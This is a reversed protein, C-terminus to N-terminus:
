VIVQSLTRSQSPISSYSPQSSSSKIDNRPRLQLRAQVLESSRWDWEEDADEGEPELRDKFLGHPEVTSESSGEPPLLFDRYTEDLILAIQEKKCISAFKAILSPPYIAGTPNNPSILVIAKIAPLSENAKHTKLLSVFSEPSPLYSPPPCPLPVPAIALSLLQMSHNFYFPTPLVVGHNRGSQAVMRFVFESAMNCGATVCIDDPTVSDKSARYTENIQKAMNDRLAPSANNYSHHAEKSAEEVFRNRLAKSPLQGPVGQALNLYRLPNKALPSQKSPYSKAWVQALSVPPSPTDLALSPSLAFLPKSARASPGPMTPHDKPILTLFFSSTSASSFVRTTEDDLGDDM